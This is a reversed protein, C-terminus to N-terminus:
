ASQRIEAFRAEVYARHRDGLGPRSHDAKGLTETWWRERPQTSLHAVYEPYLYAAVTEAWEESAARWTRLGSAQSGYWTPGPEDGVFEMLGRVLRGPRGSMRELINATRADWVHALEHVVAVEGLWAPDQHLLTEGLVVRKWPPRFWFAYMGGGGARRKELLLGGIARRFGQIGGMAASMRAVARWIHMREDARWGFPAVHLGYKRLERAWLLADNLLDSEM